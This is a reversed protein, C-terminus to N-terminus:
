RSPKQKSPKSASPNPSPSEGCADFAELASNIEQLKTEIKENISPQDPAPEPRNDPRVNGGAVIQKIASYVTETGLPRNTTEHFQVEEMLRGNRDFFFLVLDRVQNRQVDLELLQEMHCFSKWNAGTERLYQQAQKFSSASETPIHKLWVRAPASGTQPVIRGKDLYIPTGEEDIGVYLWDKERNERERLSHPEESGARSSVQDISNVAPRADIENSDRDRRGFVMGSLHKLISKKM